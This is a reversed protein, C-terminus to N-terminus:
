KVAITAKLRYTEMQSTIKKQEFSKTPLPFALLQISHQTPFESAYM